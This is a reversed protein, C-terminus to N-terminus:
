FGIGVHLGLVVNNRKEQRSLYYYTTPQLDCSVTLYINMGKKGIQASVGAEFSSFIGGKLTLNQNPVDYENWPLGTQGNEVKRGYTIFGDRYFGYGLRTRVVPSFSRDPLFSYKGYLHPRWAVQRGTQIILDDIGSPLDARNLFTVRNVGMGFSLNDTVRYGGALEFQYHSVGHASFAKGGSVEAMVELRRLQHQGQVTGPILFLVSVFLIIKKDM